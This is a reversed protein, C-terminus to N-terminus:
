REDRQRNERAPLDPSGRHWRPLRRPLVVTSVMLGYAISMATVFTDFGATIGSVTQDTLLQLISNFGASGPVLMLVGPVVFVLASRRLLLGILGGTIGVIMAAVFVAAQDGFLKAGAENAGLALTTAACMVLADRSRARLIVTFALAAVLAAGLEIGSFDQQPAAGGATGFWSAAISRGVAVGFALGFLQVLASATNAVGSQLHETSLERMGITLTMGPLLTVLAALTVLDPSADLGLQTLLAAFFAAAVAAVPAVMPETRATRTSTLAIAGVLLGVLAAGAAEQWGGGLVPTLATGAVAYAALRIPWPRRLPNGHVNELEALARDADLRGDLVDQVLDDLRAIADLDVSTPRVRLSYSRQQALSGLSVEVLTPTASVEAGTLAFARALALVREELDATPYGADHGIRAFRLILESPVDLSAHGPAADWGRPRLEERGEVGVAEAHALPV